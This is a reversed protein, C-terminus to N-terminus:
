AKTKIEKNMRDELKRIREWNTKGTSNNKLQAFQEWFDSEREKHEEILREKDIQIEKWDKQVALDVQEKMSEFFQNGFEEISLIFDVYPIEIRGNKATWLKIGNELEYETEWVIRIKDKNRFCSFQPGGILHGSNLSRKYTWSILRDYEEFYFDSHEEEDTDNMDLWKHADDLFQSLNETKQYIDHPISEKIANFLKTFDEIFRVIPYDNYPTKKDGFYKLADKSYEYLTSDALNLWLDGDTLWFWSMRLDSEAGAPQTEDIHKLKFNIM